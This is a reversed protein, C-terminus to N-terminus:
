VSLLERVFEEFSGDFTAEFVLSPPFEKGGDREERELVVFSCFHLTEVRDFPLVANCKISFSAGADDALRPDVEARLYDKLKEVCEPRIPTVITALGASM